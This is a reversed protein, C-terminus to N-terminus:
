RDSSPITEQRHIDVNSTVFFYQIYSLIFFPSTNIKQVNHISASCIGFIAASSSYYAVWHDISIVKELSEEYPLQSDNYFIVRFLFLCFLFSILAFLVSFLHRFRQSQNGAQSRISTILRDQQDEDMPLLLQEDSIEDLPLTHTSKRHCESGSIM